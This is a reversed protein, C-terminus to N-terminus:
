SGAHGVQKLPLSFAWFTDTAISQSGTQRFHQHHSTRSVIISIRSLFAAPTVLEGAVTDAM